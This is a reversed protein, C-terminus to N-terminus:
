CCFFQRLTKASSRNRRWWMSAWNTCHSSLSTPLNIWGAWCVYAHCASELCSEESWRFFTRDTRNGKMLVKFIESVSSSSLLVQHRRYLKREFKMLSFIDEDILIGSIKQYHSVYDYFHLLRLVSIFFILTSHDFCESFTESFLTWFLFPTIRNWIM